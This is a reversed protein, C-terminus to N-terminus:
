RQTSRIRFQGKAALVGMVCLMVASGILGGAGGSYLISSTPSDAASLTLFGVQAVSNNAGHAVVAPWVSCSALRLWGLAIGFVTTGVLFIMVDDIGMAGSRAQIFLQPGHWVGHILGSLLMAPWVGLSLLRPFLFGRWGIEEGIMLPLSMPFIVGIVSGLAVLFAVTPFGSDSLYGGAAPARAVIAARLGSYNTLDLDVVGLAGAILTAAFGLATFVGFAVLCYGVIRRVPRLPVVGLERLVRRPRRWSVFGVLLAALLPTFMYLQASLGYLPDEVGIGGALAPLHVLWALAFALLVFILAARLDPRRDTGTPTPETIKHV